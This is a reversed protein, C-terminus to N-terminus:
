AVVQQQQAREGAAIFATRAADVQAILDRLTVLEDALDSRLRRVRAASEDAAAKAADLADLAHAATCAACYTEGEACPANCTLTECPGAPINNDHNM